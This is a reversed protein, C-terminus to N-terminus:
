RDKEGIINEVIDFVEPRNYLATQLCSKIIYNKSCSTRGSAYADKHNGDTQVTGIFKVHQFLEEGAKIL